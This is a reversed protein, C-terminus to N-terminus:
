PWTNGRDDILYHLCNYGRCEYNNGPVGPIGLRTWKGASYRKGKLRQCDRCSKQGDMGVMTLMVNKAGRLMGQAWLGDLTAAYGDARAEAEAVLERPPLKEAKVEKLAEFLSDVYSVEETIRGTLWRDDAPDVEANGGVAYAAYFAAPFEEVIARKIANAFSRSGAGTQVLYELVAEYVTQRYSGREGALEAYRARPTLHLHARGASQAALARYRATLEGAAPAVPTTQEVEPLAEPLFGSRRRVEVYDAEGLPLLDRMQTMFAGLEALDIIKEVRTARLKPRRELGPFAARNLALLRAGLQADLQAVFGTMMANYATLWLASSDSLAAYSGTGSTTSMGVWQLNYM